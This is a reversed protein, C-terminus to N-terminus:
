HVNGVPPLARPCKSDTFYDDVSFVPYKGNESLLKALRSKGAGPLGRLLILSKEENM